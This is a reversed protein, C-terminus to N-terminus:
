TEAARQSRLWEKAEVMRDSSFHRMESKFLPKSLKTGWEKWREDGVIAMPGIESRDTFDFKLDDWLAGAEYGEMERADILMPIKPKEQAMSKFIPVFHVFDELTLKGSATAVILGDDIDTTLM